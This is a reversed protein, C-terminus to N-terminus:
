RRHFHILLPLGASTTAIDAGQRCASPIRWSAFKGPAAAPTILRGAFGAHGPIQAPGPGHPVVTPCERRFHDYGAGALEPRGHQRGYYGRPGAHGLLRRASARRLCSLFRPARHQRQGRPKRLIQSRGHDQAGIQARRLHDRLSEREGEPLRQLPLPRPVDTRRRMRLALRRLPLRRHLSRDHCSEKPSQSSTWGQSHMDLANRSPLKEHILTFETEAGAEALEITVLTEIGAMAGHDWVWTMVLREPPSIERYTGSLGHTDGDTENFVMSYAGGTRLDVEVNTVDVGEPGFWEALAAPDTFARFVAERPAKFRRSLRLAETFEAKRDTVNVEAM